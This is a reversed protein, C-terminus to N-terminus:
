KQKNVKPFSDLYAKVMPKKNDYFLIFTGLAFLILSCIAGAKEGIAFLMLALFLTIFTWLLAIVYTYIPKRFKGKILSGNETPEIIGYFGVSGGDRKKVAHHFVQFDFQGTRCGYYCAEYRHNRIFRGNSMINISPRREVLEHDLKRAAKKPTLSTEFEYSEPLFAFM